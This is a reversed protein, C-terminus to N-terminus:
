SLSALMHIMVHENNPPNMNQHFNPTPPLAVCWGLDALLDVKQCLTPWFPTKTRPNLNPILNLFDVKPDFLDVKKPNWVDGFDIRAIPRIKFNGGIRKRHM